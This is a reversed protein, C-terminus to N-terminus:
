SNTHPYGIVMKISKQADGPGAIIADGDSKETNTNSSIVHSYDLNITHHRFTM